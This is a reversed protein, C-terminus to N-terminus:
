GTGYNWRMVMFGAQGVQGVQACHPKFNLWIVIEKHLTMTLSQLEYGWPVIILIDNVVTYLVTCQVIVKNIM